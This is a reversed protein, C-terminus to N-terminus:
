QEHGKEKGPRVKGNLELVQELSAEKTGVKLIAKIREQRGNLHEPSVGTTAIVWDIKGRLEPIWDPESPKKPDAPDGLDKFQSKQGAKFLDDKLDTIKL